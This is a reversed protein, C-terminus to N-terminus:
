FLCLMLMLCATPLLFILWVSGVVLVTYKPSAKQGMKNIVPLSSFINASKVLLEAFYDFLTKRHWYDVKYSTEIIHLAHYIILVLILIFLTLGILTLGIWLVLLKSLQSFGGTTLLALIVFVGFICTILAGHYISLRQLYSDYLLKLVQEEEGRHLQSLDIKSYEKPTLKYVVIIAVISLIYLTVILMIQEIFANM